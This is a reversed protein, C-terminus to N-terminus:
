CLLERNPRLSPGMETVGSWPYAGPSPTFAQWHFVNYSIHGAETILALVTMAFKDGILLQHNNAAYALTNSM